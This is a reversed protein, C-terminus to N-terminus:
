EFLAGNQILYKITAVNVSFRFFIGLQLTLLRFVGTVLNLVCLILACAWAWRKLKLIGFGVIVQAVGLVIPIIAIVWVIVNFSTAAGAAEPPVGAELGVEAVTSTIAMAEMLWMGGMVMNMFAGVFMLIAILTVQGPRAILPAKGPRAQGVPGVAPAPARMASSHGNPRLETTQSRGPQEVPAASVSGGAALTMKKVLFPMTKESKRKYIELERVQKSAVDNMAKGFDAAFAQGDMFETTEITVKVVGDAFEVYPTLKPKDALAGEVFKQLAALNGQKALRKCDEPSLNGSAVQAPDPLEISTIGNESIAYSASWAPTMAGMQFGLIQVNAELGLQQIGQTLMASMRRQDPTDLGELRIRLGSANQDIQATVGQAKLHRNMLASLAATDGQKALELVQSM